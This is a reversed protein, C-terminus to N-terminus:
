TVSSVSCRWDIPIHWVGDTTFIRQVRGLFSKYYYYIFM